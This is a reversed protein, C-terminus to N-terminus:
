EGKIFSKKRPQTHWCMYVSVCGCTFLIWYLVVPILQLKTGPKLLCLTLGMLLVPFILANNRALTINQATIEFDLGSGRWSGELWSKLWLDAVNQLLPGSKHWVLDLCPGSGVQGMGPTGQQLAGWWQFM